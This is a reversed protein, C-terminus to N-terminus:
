PCSKLTCVPCLARKYIMHLLNINNNNNNKLGETSFERLYSINILLTYIVADASKDHPFTGLFSVANGRQLLEVAQQSCSGATEIAVPFFIHTSAWHILTAGDPRKGDSRPLGAPEKIAPIKEGCTLIDNMQSHRQQRHAVLWVM